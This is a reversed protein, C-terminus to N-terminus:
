VRQDERYNCARHLALQGILHEVFTESNPQVDSASWCGLATPHGDERSIKWASKEISQYSREM